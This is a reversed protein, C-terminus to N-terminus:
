QETYTATWTGPCNGAGPVTLNWTGNEFTSTNGNYDAMLPGSFPGSQFFGMWMGNSLMGTFTGSNCNLTGGLTSTISFLNLCCTGGFTGSATSIFSEGSSQDHMLQFSINGTITLGGGDAGGSSTGGESFQFDCTYMGTYTGDKCTGTGLGSSSGPSGDGLNIVGSSSGGSSGGSGGDDTGGGGGGDDNMSGFSTSSKSSCAANSLPMSLLLAASAFVANRHLGM